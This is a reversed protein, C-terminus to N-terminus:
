VVIMIRMGTACTHSWATRTLTRSIASLFRPFNAVAQPGGGEQVNQSLLAELHEVNEDTFFAEHFESKLQDGDVDGLGEEESGRAGQHVYDAVM